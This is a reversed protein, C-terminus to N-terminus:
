LLMRIGTSDMFTLGRLDVVLARVADDLHLGLQRELPAECNCDFEGELRMVATGDSREAHLTCIPSLRTSDPM